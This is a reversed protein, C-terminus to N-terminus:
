ILGMFWDFGDAQSILDAAKEIMTNKAAFVAAPSDARAATQKTQISTGTKKLVQRGASRIATM